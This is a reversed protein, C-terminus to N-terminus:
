GATKIWKGEKNKKYEQGIGTGVKNLGPGFVQCNPCMCAWMRHITAADYFTDVIPQGCTDCKTPAPGLWQKM